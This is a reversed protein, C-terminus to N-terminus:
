QPPPNPKYPSYYKNPVPQMQNPRYQGQQQQQQGYMANGMNGQQAFAQNYSLNPNSGYGLAQQNQWQAAPNAGYNVMPQQYAMSGSGVRGNMPQANAPPQSNPPPPLNGHVGNSAPLPKSAPLQKAQKSAPLQKAKHRQVQVGNSTKSAVTPNTPARANRPPKKMKPGLMQKDDPIVFTKDKFKEANTWKTPNKKPDPLRFKNYKM